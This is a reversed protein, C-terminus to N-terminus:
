VEKGNNEGNAQRATLQVMMTTHPLQVLVSLFLRVPQDVLVVLVVVQALDVLVLVVM